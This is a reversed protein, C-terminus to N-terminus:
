SSRPLYRVWLIVGCNEDSMSFKPYFGPYNFFDPLEDATLIPIALVVDEAHFVETRNIPVTGSRLLLACMEM